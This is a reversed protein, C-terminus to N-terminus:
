GSAPEIVLTVTRNRAPDDFPGDTQDAVALTFATLPLDGGEALYGAAVQARQQALPSGGSSEQGPVPISHGVVTTAVDLEALRGGVRRLLTPSRDSPVTDYLFVGEEFLVRVVRDQQRVRVGPLDLSGAIASLAENRRAAASARADARETLRQEAQNARREEARAQREEARVREAWRESAGAVGESAVPVLWGVGVVLATVTLGAAGAALWGTHLLPRARRRGGRRIRAITRRGEAADPDDPVQEQVAAWCRDAGDLDGRQAHVRARLDLAETSSGAPDLEDLLRAATELDGARAAEYARSVALQHHLAARLSDNM